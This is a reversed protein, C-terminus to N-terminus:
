FEMDKGSFELKGYLCEETVYLEWGLSTVIKVKTLLFGGVALFGTELIERGAYESSKMRAHMLIVFDRVKM